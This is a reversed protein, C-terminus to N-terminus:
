FFVPVGYHAAAYAVGMGVALVVVRGVTAGVAGFFMRRPRELKEEIHLMRDDLSKLTKDMNQAWQVFEGRSLNGGNSYSWESV